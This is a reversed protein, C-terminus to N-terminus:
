KRTTTDNEKSTNRSEVITAVKIEKQKQITVYFNGKSVQINTTM